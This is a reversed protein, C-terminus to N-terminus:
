SMYIDNFYEKSKEATATNKINNINYTAATEYNIQLAREFPYSENETIIIGNYGDKVFDYSVPIDSLVPICGASLAELLSTSTGDSLPYSVYFKSKAYWKRNEENNLWGVFEVKNTLNLKNVLEKLKNTNDGSGAIVLKYDDHKQIFDNFFLIIKDIRYLDKHLRNSYFINEKNEPTIPKIGYLVKKANANPYLSYIKQLIEDSDCTIFNCRKLTAISILKNVFNKDPVLLIDSGWATAIFPIKIKKSILSLVFALRNIQHVHILKPNIKKIKNKLLFYNKVLKFINFSRFSYHYSNNTPRFNEYEGIYCVEDDFNMQNFFNTIHVSDPGAIIIKM